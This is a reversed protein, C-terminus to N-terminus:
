NASRGDQLRCTLPEIGSVPEWNWPRKGTGGATSRQIFRAILAIQAGLRGDHDLDPSTVYLLQRDGRARGVLSKNAAGDTCNEAV